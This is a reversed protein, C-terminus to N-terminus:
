ESRRTRKNLRGRADKMEKKIALSLSVSEVASMYREREMQTLPLMKPDKITFVIRDHEPIVSTVRVFAESLRKLASQEFEFGVDITLDESVREKEM